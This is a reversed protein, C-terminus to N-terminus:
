GGALGGGGWGVWGGRRGWYRRGGVGGWGGERDRPQQKKRIETSPATLLVSGIAPHGDGLPEM